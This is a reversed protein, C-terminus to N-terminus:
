LNNTLIFYKIYKIYKFVKNDKDWYQCDLQTDYVLKFPFVNEPFMCNVADTNLDLIIGGHSEVLKVLKHLEIQEEQLIQNYIPQETEMVIRYSKQFTHYDLKDKIKM